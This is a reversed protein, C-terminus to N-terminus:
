PEDDSPAAPPLNLNPLTDLKWLDVPEWVDNRKTQGPYKILFPVHLKDEPHASFDRIHSGHDSMVILTTQDWWGSTKLADLWGQLLYDAYRFQPFFGDLTNYHALPAPQGHADFVFPNHPISLHLIAFDGPSLAQSLYIKGQQFIDETIARYHCARAPVHWKFQKCLTVIPGKSADVYGDVRTWMAKGLASSDPRLQTGTFCHAHFLDFWGPMFSSLAHADGIYICRGNAVHFRPPLANPFESCSRWLGNSEAEDKWQFPKRLSFSRPWAVPSQFLLGCLSKGTYDGPAQAWHFVTSTNAVQALAPLNTRLTGNSSFAEDYTVMDLILILFPGRQITGASAASPQPPFTEARQKSPHPWKPLWLLQLALLIPLPWLHGLM